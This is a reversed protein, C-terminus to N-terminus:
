SGEVRQITPNEASFKFFKNGNWFTNKSYRDPPNDSDMFYYHYNIINTFELIYGFWSGEYTDKYLKYRTIGTLNKFEESTYIWDKSDGVTWHVKENFGSNPKLGSDPTTEDGPNPLGIEYEKGNDSTAKEWKYGPTADSQSMII